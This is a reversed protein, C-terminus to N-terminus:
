RWRSRSYRHLQLAPKLGSRRGFHVRHRYIKLCPLNVFRHFPGNQWFDSAYRLRFASAPQLGRESKMSRAEATHGAEM